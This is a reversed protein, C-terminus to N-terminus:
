NEQTGLMSQPYDAKQKREIWTLPFGHTPDQCLGLDFVTFCRHLKTHPRSTVLVGVADCSVLRFSSCVHLLVAGGSREPALFVKFNSEM